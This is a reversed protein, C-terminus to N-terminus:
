RRGKPARRINSRSRFRRRWQPPRRARLIFELLTQQYMTPQIITWRVPSDQVRTEVNLKRQHHPVGPFSAHLVSYYIFCDVGQAGAAALAHAAYTEEQADFPPAIFVLADLGAIAKAISTSDALEIHATESAGNQRAAEASRASRVLGRTQLGRDALARVISRGTRGGAAIVGVTSTM